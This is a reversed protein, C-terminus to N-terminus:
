LLGYQTLQEDEAAQLVLIIIHTLTHSTPPAATCKASAAIFIGNLRGSAATRDTTLQVCDSLSM